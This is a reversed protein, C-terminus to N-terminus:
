RGQPGQVSGDVLVRESAIEKRRRIRDVVFGMAFLLLGGSSSSYILMGLFEGVGLWSNLEQMPIFLTALITLVGVALFTGGVAMLWDAIGKRGPLWGAVGLTSSGLGFSVAVWIWIWDGMIVADSLGAASAV